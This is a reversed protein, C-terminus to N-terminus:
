GGIAGRGPSYRLEIYFYEVGWEETETRRACEINARTGKAIGRESSTTPRGLNEGLPDVDEVAAVMSNRCSRVLEQGAAMRVYLQLGSERTNGHRAFFIHPSRLIRGFIVDGAGHARILFCSNCNV